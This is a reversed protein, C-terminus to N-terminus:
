PMLLNVLMQAAEARTAVDNPRLFGSNGIIGRAVAWQMADTAWGPVDGWDPFGVRMALSTDGMWNFLMQAFEARTCGDDPRFNDQDPSIVETRKAWDVAEYYYPSATVDDYPSEFRAGAANAIMCVAQGRTLPDNAGICGNGYGHLYGATVAKDLADVYWEGPWVDSYGKLSDPLGDIREQETMGGRNGTYAGWADADGYFKNLDLSGGWGVLSGSSSYQRIACSYAGENWPADQYGTPTYNAYQAVWMGCNNADAVAKVSGYVSQQAYVMPPIGTREVVRKVVADLYSYDGWASNGGSEWDICFIGYGVWNLCSDVFFDAEAQAGSGNVYHYVGFPKGISRCQEVARSCDPNVYGTGETAKVIAFDCPVASLDIGSQWSSVDIGQM